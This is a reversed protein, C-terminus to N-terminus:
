SELLIDQAQRVPNAWNLKTSAWLNAAIGNNSTIVIAGEKEPCVYLACTSGATGGNAFLINPSTEARRVRM